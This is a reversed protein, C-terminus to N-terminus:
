SALVQKASGRRLAPSNANRLPSKREIERDRMKGLNIVLHSYYMEIVADPIPRAQHSEMRKRTLVAREYLRKFDKAQSSIQPRPQKNHVLVAAERWTLSTKTARLWAQKFSGNEVPFIDFLSAKIPRPSDASFLRRASTRFSNLLNSFRKAVDAM